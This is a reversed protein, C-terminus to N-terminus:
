GQGRRLPLELTFATGQGPKSEVRVKGEHRETIAHAIYLGLGVGEGVSKTTFFPKFIDKMEGPTMGRGTDRIEVLVKDGACGTTITIRGKGGPLSQLANKIINMMVQGLAAFNGEMVPLDPAFCREIEVATHKYQGYLILLSDELVRNINVPEVYTEKQRSVGLLSKVIDGARRLEKLTFRLDDLLEAENERSLDGSEMSDVGTQILSIAAALPNNLEHAAGAALQGIAALTESQILRGQTEEKEKLARSLDATRLQVKRELERSLRELAEYSEANELAIVAQNALTSLLALDEPVFLEGSMKQGLGILGMLRGRSLMPVLITARTDAFLRALETREQNAIGAADLQPGTIPGKHNRFFASLANDPSPNRGPERFVIEKGQNAMELRGDEGSLLLVAQSVQLTELVFRIIADKIEAARLFTTFHESIEKMREQYDYKGRFFLRDIAGQVLQRLPNLLLVMLLAFILPLFLGDTRATGWFFFNFGWVLFVYIITLISTLIFYITGKRILVGIDLLDYRLFGYALFLAPVFSFNSMPYIHFGSVPLINLSVMLASFGMGVLLYKIRNKEQNETARKMGEYLTKLCYIVTFAVLLSFAHFVPGARAITGFDYQYLGEIFLPTPVFFLFILSLGYAFYELSKRKKLGLFYHVFQIYVPPSFVFFLYTMRDLTLALTKDEIISILAVDANILAGLFTIGFFLLNTPNKRGRSLAMLSISFMVFSGIISPIVPLFLSGANYVGM